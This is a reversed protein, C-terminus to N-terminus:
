GWPAAQYEPMSDIITSAISATMDEIARYMRTGPFRGESCQYHLCHGAKFGRVLMLKGRIMGNHLYSYRPAHKREDYRYNVAQTNLKFLKRGLDTLEDHTPPTYRTEAYATLFRDMAENTVIYASM